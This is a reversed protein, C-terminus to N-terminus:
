TNHGRFESGDVLITKEPSMAMLGSGLLHKTIFVAALGVVVLMALVYTTRLLIPRM